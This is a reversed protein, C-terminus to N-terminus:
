YNWMNLLNRLVYAHTSTPGAVQNQWVPHFHIKHSVSGWFNDWLTSFQEVSIFLDNMWRHPVNWEDSFDVEARNIIIHNYLCKECHWRSSSKRELLHWAHINLKYRRSIIDRQSQDNSHHAMYPLLFICSSWPHPCMLTIVRFSM